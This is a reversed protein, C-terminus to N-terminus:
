GSKPDKDHNSQQNLGVIRHIEDIDLSRRVVNVILDISSSWDEHPSRLLQKPEKIGKRVAVYGLLAKCLSPNEFFGHLYTGIVLGSSDIAGDTDEAEVVKLAPKALPGLITQGMHIEYGSLTLNNTKELIPGGGIAKVAVNRTTKSYEEFNTHVDLLGLGQLTDTSGDEIGRDDKITKGLIQYGGCIGIIPVKMKAIEIIEKALGNALLWKLDKITNKTGPVVVADPVGLEKASSVYRLRVDEIASLPDLDTFNSISPLRIVAIDFKGRPAPRYNELFLSDEQPLTLNQIYPIIGLVHKKTRREVIDIGPQLIDPDGRLKNIILGKVLERQRANLLSITGVLSAFVGGRDIDATLLVPANTMEAISMNAIDHQLNVEAPSGAGEIVIIDYILSLRDYSEKVAKLGEAPAFKMMYDKYSLDIRPKGHVIVQCTKSDKPKLLIPNMDVTAEIRAAFAQLAQARSIEAGDKTVFSNLSMNQAKFPAVRYGEDAFLKCFAMVLLTKGSHSTTGQVMLNKRM